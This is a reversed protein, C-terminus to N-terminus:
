KGTGVVKKFFNLKNPLDNKMIYKDRAKAAEKETEFCGVNVYGNNVGIRASWPKANRRGRNYAKYITGIYVKEM